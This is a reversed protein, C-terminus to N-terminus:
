SNSTISRSYLETVISKTVLSGSKYSKVIPMFYL